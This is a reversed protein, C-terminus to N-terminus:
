SRVFIIFTEGAEATDLRPRHVAGDQRAGDRGGPHLGQRGHGGQLPVPARGEPPAATQQEAVPGAGRGGCKPVRVPFFFNGVDHRKNAVLSMIQKNSM